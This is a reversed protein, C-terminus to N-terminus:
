DLIIIIIIFFYILVFANKFLMHALTRNASIKPSLLCLPFVFIKDSKLFISFSLMKQYFMINHM